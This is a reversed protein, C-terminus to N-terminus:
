QLLKLKEIAEKDSIGMRERTLPDNLSSAPIEYNRRRRRLQIKSLYPYSTHKRLNFTPDNEKLWEWAADKGM